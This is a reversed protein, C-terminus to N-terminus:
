VKPLTWIGVASSGSACVAKTPHWKVCRVPSEHRSVHEEPTAPFSLPPSVLVPNLLTGPPLNMRRMQQETASRVADEYIRLSRQASMRAALRIGPSKHDEGMIVYPPDYKTIDSKDVFFPLPKLNKTTKAFPEVPDVMLNYNYVHGDAGGVSLFKSSPDFSITSAGYPDLPHSNLLALERDPQFADVLLVGRDSSGVALFRDDSSFEISTWQIQTPYRAPPQPSLPDSIAPHITSEIVAQKTFAFPPKSFDAANYLAVSRNSSALAFVRGSRDFTANGGLGNVTDMFGTSVCNPSRLDWIKFTGDKSCSIFFDSNPSMAISTVMSTHGKFYRIIKNDHLSHYVIQGVNADNLRTLSSHIVCHEHHTYTLHNCGYERSFLENVLDGNEGSIVKIVGDNHSSVLINGSDSFALSNVRPDHSPVTNSFVSALGM